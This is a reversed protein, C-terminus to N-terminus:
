SMFSTGLARSYGNVSFGDFDGAAVCEDLYERAKRAEASGDAALHTRTSELGTGCLLQVDIACHADWSSAKAQWINQIDQPQGANFLQLCRVRM